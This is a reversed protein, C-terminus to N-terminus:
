CTKFIDREEWVLPDNVSLPWESLVSVIRINQIWIRIYM